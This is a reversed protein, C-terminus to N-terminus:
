NGDQDGIFNIIAQPVGNILTWTCNGATIWEGPPPPSVFWVSGDDCLAYFGGRAGTISIVKRM